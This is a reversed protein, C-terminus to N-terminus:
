YERQFVANYVNVVESSHSPETDIYAQNVPLSRM